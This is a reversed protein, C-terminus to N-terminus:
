FEDFGAQKLELGDREMEQHTELMPGQGEYSLEAPYKEFHSADDLGYQEAYSRIFRDADDETKFLGVVNYPEVEEQLIMDASPDYWFWVTDPTPNDIQHTGGDPVFDQIGSQNTLVEVAEGIKKAKLKQLSLNEYQHKGHIEAHQELFNHADEEDDFFPNAFEGNVETHYLFGNTDPNYWAYVTETYRGGDPMLERDRVENELARDVAAKYHAEPFYNFLNYSLESGREADLFM